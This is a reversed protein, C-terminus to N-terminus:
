FLLYIICSRQPTVLPGNPKKVKLDKQHLTCVQRRRIHSDWTVKMRGRYYTKGDEEKSFSKLSPGYAPSKYTLEYRECTDFEDQTPKFTPFCYVVAHTDLTIILVEDVNDGRVSINHSLKTPELYQFNPTENVIVDHLRMQTTSLLSHELHTLSIGQHIILLVTKETQTIVYGLVVSLIQRLQTEGSPDYGIV